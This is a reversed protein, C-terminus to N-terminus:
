RVGKIHAFANVIFSKEFVTQVPQKGRSSLRAFVLGAADPSAAVSVWRMDAM